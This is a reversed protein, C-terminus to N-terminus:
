HQVPPESEAEVPAAPKSPRRRLWSSIAGSVNAGAEAVSAAAGAVAEAAAGAAGATARAATSATELVTAGATEVATRARPKDPVGDGDLDVPQFAQLTQTSFRGAADVGDAGVKLAADWTEGAATLWHRAELSQSDATLGLRERFEVVGAAVVNNSRVVAPSAIPHLLVETNAHEAAAKMRALLQVTSRALLQLRNQRALRLAIRHKNLEEPSADLVRDLELVAIGEQLQFCRALVALWEQVKAEAVRASNALEGMDSKRELKEALADL